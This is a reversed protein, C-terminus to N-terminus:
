ERQQALPSTWIGTDGNQIERLAPAELKRTRPSKREAVARLTNNEELQENATSHSQVTRRM